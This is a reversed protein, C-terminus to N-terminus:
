DSAAYHLTGRYTVGNNDDVVTGIVRLPEGAQEAASLAQDVEDPSVVLLFGMGMNFTRLMELDAVNGTKQLYEFVPLAEWADLDVEAGLEEPLTRPLNDTIGGGTVHSMGKVEVVQCLVQVIKAYTKHPELLIEGVTRGVGPMPDDCTLGAVEFCIKRALTYGNTHLGTSAFGLVKDGARIKSGDVVKSRDVVGVITGAIDYEGPRYMDPLEAIEGGILACGAYRCGNALGRVIEEIVDPEVKGVGLYDLFFLPKAGQVLIDNVCHSVIDIGVTDHRGTMFALKLKTGVGDVSSVLVPEDMDSPDFRYMAGFRGIDCLVHDDFTKGVIDKIRGVAEDAADIDVGADRYSLGPPKQDDM